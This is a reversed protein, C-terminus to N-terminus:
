SPGVTAGMAMLTFSNYIDPMVMCPQTALKDREVKQNLIIDRM